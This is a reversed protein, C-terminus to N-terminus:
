WGNLIAVQHLYVAFGINTVYCGALLAAWLAKSQLFGWARQELYFCLPITVYAAYGYVSWFERANITMAWLLPSVIFALLWRQGRWVGSALLLVCLLLLGVILLFRVTQLFAQSAEQYAGLLGGFPVFGESDVKVEFSQRLMWLLDAHHNAGALGYLAFPAFTALTQVWTFRGEALAVIVLILVVPWVSKHALLTLALAAVAPWSRNRVYFWTALAMLAFLLANARPQITWAVGVLPFLAFLLACQVAYRLAYHALVLYVLVTSAVYALLSILEGFIRPNEWPAVGNLLALLAPYAPLELAPFALLNESARWYQVSDTQVILDMGRVFTIYVFLALWAVLAIAGVFLPKRGPSITM